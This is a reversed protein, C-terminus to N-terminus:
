PKFRITTVSGWTINTFVEMLECDVSVIGIYYYDSDFCMKKESGKPLDYEFAKGGVPGIIMLADAHDNIVVLNVQYFSDECGLISLAVILLVALKRM